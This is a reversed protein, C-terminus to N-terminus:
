NYATIMDSWSMTAISQFFYLTCKTKGSINRVNLGWEDNDWSATADNTCEAKDFIWGSNKAPISDTKEDGQYVAIIGVDGDSTVRGNILTYEQNSVFKSYTIYIVGVVLLVVSLIISGKKIYENKNQKLKIKREYKSM